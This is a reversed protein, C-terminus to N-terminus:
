KLLVMRRVDIHEGAQLRCFYVGSAVSSGVADTGDWAVEHNGPALEGARLITRVVRGAADYIVIDVPSTQGLRFAVMTRPNFPNPSIGLISSGGLPVDSNVGTADLDYDTNQPDFNTWKAAWQSEMGRSPDFAGRYTVQQFYAAVDRHVWSAPTTVLESTPLPIPNPNNLDSMDTLGVSSPMRPQSQTPNNGPEADFWATVGAWRVEDHISSSGSPTASAQVSTYHVNMTDTLAFNQTCADRVSFGWPFGMIVSNHIKHKTCRRLVASYEFAHGPPLNGVLADTREPGVITCNAFATSTIPPALGAPKYSDSEFGNSQGEADSWDPDRLCFCFQHRGSHGFDTDFVDDLGGLVCLYDSDCNGGFWEFSDDNSYSVQVHHIETNQGVGGMTLGNVENGEEIRHGPFEIRCYYFEGSDDDPDNGGFRGEILGGEIVPNVRNVPANGLIIVGGWDGPNRQGPEKMSTFVVPREESGTAHIRGGRAVVLTATTDGMVVTGEPITLTYLSDVYYFGTLVYLTDASLTRHWSQHYPEEAHVPGTGPGLVVQPKWGAFAQAGLVTSLILVLLIGTKICSKM